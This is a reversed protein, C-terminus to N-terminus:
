IVKLIYMSDVIIPNIAVLAEIVIDINTVSSGKVVNTVELTAYTGNLDVITRGDATGPMREPTM